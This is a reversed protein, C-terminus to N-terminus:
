SAHQKIAQQFASILQGALVTGDFKNKVLSRAAQGIEHLEDYHAYCYQIAEIMEEKTDAILVHKRDIAPIGELGIRTTIIVKGLAMGELIKVRIGSGAFLPVIMIPHSNIFAKADNTNQHFIINPQNLKSYSEDAGRGTFHFKLNPFLQHIEPWAESIFWNLGSSNPMWDLSGIFCLSLQNNPQPTINYQNLDLGVPSSICGNKYGLERFKKLDRDTIAVLFDYNNLTEVEFRKLKKALYSLYIKKPIFKIQDTIRDWIEHEINHARMVILANSHEKIIDLYPALYLTELQIIDYKNEKLIQILQNAFSTSIFRSIHYSDSSFLNKLAGFANIQNDVEVSKIFKYHLCEIPLEGSFNFHHRSTNMTLLSMECGLNHLALSMQNIAIAEGDKLPYPFKKCLQLIKM